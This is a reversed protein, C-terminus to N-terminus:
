GSRAVLGIGLVVVLGIVAVVILVLSNGGEQDMDLNGGGVVGGDLIPQVPVRAEAVGDQGELGAGAGVSLLAAEERRQIEELVERLREDLDLYQLWAKGIGGILADGIEFVPRSEALAGATTDVTRYIQVLSTLEQLSLRRLFDEDLFPPGRFEASAPGVPRSIALEEMGVVPVGDGGQAAAEVMEGPTRTTGDKDGDPYDLQTAGVWDLAFFVVVLFTPCGKM